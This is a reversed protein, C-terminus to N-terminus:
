RSCKQRTRSGGRCPQQLCCCSYRRISVLPGHELMFGCLIWQASGVLPGWLDWNRLAQDRNSFKWNIPILVSRLNRGITMFDRGITMLVSEDLTSEEYVASIATPQQPQAMGRGETRCSGEQGSRYGRPVCGGSARLTSLLAEFSTASPVPVLPRVQTPGWSCNYHLRSKGRASRGDAALRIRM